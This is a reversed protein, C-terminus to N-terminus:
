ASDKVRQAVRRVVESFGSAPSILSALFVAAIDPAMSKINRLRKELFSQSADDDGDKIAAKVAVIEQRIEEKTQESTNERKDVREIIEKFKQSQIQNYDGVSLVAQSIQGGTIVIGGNSYITTSPSVTTPSQSSASNKYQELKKRVWDFAALYIRYEDETIGFYEPRNTADRKMYDAANFKGIKRIYVQLDDKDEFIAQYQAWNALIAQLQEYCGGSRQTLNALDDLTGYYKRELTAKKEGRGSTEKSFIRSKAVLREKVAPITIQYSSPGNQKALGYDLLHAIM